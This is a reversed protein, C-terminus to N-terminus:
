QKALDDSRPLDQLSRLHFLDLFRNTTSYSAKHPETASRNIQLLRRRVLYSLVQGSSTGRFKAVQDATIPENYAVLALVEIAAPSLRTARIKGQIRSRLALHEPRLSLRFGDNEAVIVYPCRNEAYHANLEQIQQEVEAPSIGRILSAIQQSTIPLNDPRGTFLVAEVISRLNPLPSNETAAASSRSLSAPASVLEIGIEGGGPVPPQDGSAAAEHGLMAAFAQSLEDLSLGAAESHPAPQSNNDM